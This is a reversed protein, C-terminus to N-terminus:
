DNSTDDVLDVDPLDVEPLDVEIKEAEVKRVEKSTRKKATATERKEEEVVPTAYGAACLAVADGGEVIDGPVMMTPGALPVLLKARM